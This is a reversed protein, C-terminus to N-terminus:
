LRYGGAVDLNVWHVNSVQLTVKIGALHSFAEAIDNVGTHKEGDPSFYVGDADYTAAAGKFDGKNIADVFDTTLKQIATEDATHDVKGVVNPKSQMAPAALLLALLGITLHM